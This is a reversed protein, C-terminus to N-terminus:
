AGRRPKVKLTVPPRLGDADRVLVLVEQRRPKRARRLKRGAKLAGKRLKATVARTGAPLTLRLDGARTLRATGASTTVRRKRKVKLASPLSVDVRTLAPAGEAAAVKLKM